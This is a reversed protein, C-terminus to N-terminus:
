VSMLIIVFCVRGYINGIPYNRLKYFLYSFVESENSNLSIFLGKLFNLVKLFVKLFFFIDSAFSCKRTFWFPGLIYVSYFMAFQEKVLFNITALQLYFKVDVFNRKKGLICM